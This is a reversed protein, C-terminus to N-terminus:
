HLPYSLKSCPKRYFRGLLQEVALGVILGAPIYVAIFLAFNSLTGTGPLGIWNPNTAFLLILCWVGVLLVSKPRKFLGVITAAGFMIWAWIPLYITLNGITNYDITSQSLSSSSTTIQNGFIQFITSGYVRLM